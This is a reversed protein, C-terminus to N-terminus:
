DHQQAVAGVEVILHLRADQAGAADQALREAPGFQQGQEFLLAAIGGSLVQRGRTRTSSLEDRCRTRSLRARSAAPQSIRSAPARSSASARARALRGSTA